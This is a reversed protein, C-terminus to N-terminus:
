RAMVYMCVCVCVFHQETQFMANSIFQLYIPRRCFSFPFTHSQLLSLSLLVPLFWEWEMWFLINRFSKLKVVLPEFNKERRITFTIQQITKTGWKLPYNTPFIMMWIPRALRIVHLAGTQAHSGVSAICRHSSRDSCLYQRQVPFVCVCFCVFTLLYGADIPWVSRISFCFM